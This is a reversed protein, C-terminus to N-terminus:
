GRLRQGNRGLCIPKFFDNDGNEIQLHDVVKDDFFKMLEKKLECVSILDREWAEMIAGSKHQMKVWCESVCNQFNTRREYHIVAGIFVRPMTLCIEPAESTLLRAVVMGHKFKSPM